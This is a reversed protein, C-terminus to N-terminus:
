KTVLWGLKYAAAYMAGIQSGHTFSHTRLMEMFQQKSIKMMEIDEFPDLQIDKIQKAGKALYFWARNNELPPNPHITYLLEMDNTSFGTEEEMERLAAKMPEEGPDVMGGPLEISLIGAAQRYQKVLVVEENETVIFVNCFSPVDIVLYPSLIRGDPLEVEQEHVTLWKKQYKIETSILNWKNIM